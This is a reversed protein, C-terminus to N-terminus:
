SKKKSMKQIKILTKKMHVPDKIRFDLIKGSFKDKFCLRYANLCLPTDKFLKDARSYIKDGLVPYGANSLHVRIQHTRGTLLKIHLYSFDGIHKTKVIATKSIKGGSKLVAMKKRNHPNRGINNEIVMQAPLFFGKVIAHYKKIIKRNKFLAQLFQMSEPSKAVIILGSTEKDLRHVIGPRYKDNNFFIDKRLGLLANVLTGKYNGKAPHVVMDYKKNIVIYNDDEYVIDLPINEPVIEDFEEWECEVSIQDNLRCKYSFKETRGNVLVSKSHTKLASRTLKSNNKAIIVDLRKGADEKVVVFKYKKNM